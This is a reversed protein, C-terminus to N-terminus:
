VYRLRRQVRPTVMCIYAIFPQNDRPPYTSSSANSVNGSASGKAITMSYGSGTDGIAGVSTQVIANVRHQDTAELWISLSTATQSATYHIRYLYEFSNEDASSVGFYITESDDHPITWIDVNKGSSDVTHRTASSVVFKGNSITYSLGSYVVPYPRAFQPIFDSTIRWDVNAPEIIDLVGYSESDEIGKQATLNNRGWVFRTSM